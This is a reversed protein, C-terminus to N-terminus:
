MTLPWRIYPRSRPRNDATTKKSTITAKPTTDDAQAGTATTGATNVANLRTPQIYAYATVTLKSILKDM